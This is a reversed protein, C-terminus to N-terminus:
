VLSQRLVSKSGYSDDSCQLPCRWTDLYIQLFVHRRSSLHLLELGAFHRHDYSVTCVFQPYGSITVLTKASLTKSFPFSNLGGRAFIRFGQRLSRSFSDPQRGGM